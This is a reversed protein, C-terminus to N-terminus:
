EKNLFRVLQLLDSEKNYRIKEKKIYGLAPQNDGFVAMLDKKNKIVRAALGDPQIFFEDLSRKFYAPVTAAYGEPQIEPYYDVRKKILLRYKGTEKLFFYVLKSSDSVAHTVILMDGVYRVFKIDTKISTRSDSLLLVRGSQGAANVQYTQNQLLDRLTLLQWYRMNLKEVDGYM